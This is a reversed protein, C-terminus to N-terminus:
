RLGEGLQLGLDRLDPHLHLRGAYGEVVVPRVADVNEEWTDMIKSNKAQSYKYIYDHVSKLQKNVTLLIINKYFFVIM